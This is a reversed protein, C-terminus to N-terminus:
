LARVIQELESAIQTASEKGRPRHGFSVPEGIRLTVRRPRPLGGKPWARHAGDLRCPVVPVPNSAVISGIGPKFRGLEGTSSRTGEPFLILVNGPNELLARCMRLSQGGKVDRSFPLANVIVAAVALRPLTEFFYDRAAAPFARHLRRIPLASLIALTDLHSQHNCVIVCSEAPLNERGVVRLRHFVKLWARLGLAFFSRVSYVSMDPERPFTKLREVLTKDLDTATDYLWDESADAM